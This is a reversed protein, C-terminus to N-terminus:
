VFKIKVYEEIKRKFETLESENKIEDYIENFMKLGKYFLNNQSMTKNYKPLRFNNNNRLNHHHIQHGFNIRNDLYNPLQGNKIRYIFVFANFTLKQKISMWKLNELMDIKRTRMDCNLITRMARNQLKQLKEVKEDSMIFLITSCYQLHPEIMTKYVLTRHSKDLKFKMRSLFWTKNSIKKVVNEFHENFNLKNDLIIGLYKVQDVKMINKGDMKITEDTEVKKNNIIMYVTKENNLILKNLKLWENLKYLESNMKSIAQEVNKDSIYVLTDDAFLKIHCLNVTTNIDNIYLLFLLPGLVSGQPVGLHNEVPGSLIDDIKTRQTRGTLYSEFWEKEVGRVGIRELKKLLIKRDVTEFARKLDLFLAVTTQNNDMADKWDAIVFNLATECSHSKRFGSQINLLINNIDLYEQLQMKVV